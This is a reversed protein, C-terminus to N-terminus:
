LLATNVAGHVRSVGKSTSSGGKRQVTTNGAVINLKLSIPKRIGVFTIKVSRKLVFQYALVYDQLHKPVRRVRQSRRLEPAEVPTAPPQVVTSGQSPAEAAAQSPLDHTESVPDRPERPQPESYQEDQTEAATPASENTRRLHVRNRRLVGQPLEVEYSREDLRKKVVGQQWEKKGVHWPKVRVPDGKEM